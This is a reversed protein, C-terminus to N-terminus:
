PTNINQEKQYDLFKQTIRPFNKKLYLYKERVGEDTENEVKEYVYKAFKKWSNQEHNLGYFTFMYDSIYRGDFDDKILNTDLYKQGAKDFARCSKIVEDDIIVRPYKAEHEELNYAKVFGEGFLVDNSYYIQGKVIAGRSTVPINLRLLRIQLYDCIAMVATLANKVSAEVFICVTDSMVKIHLDEKSIIPQSTEDFSIVYQKNIEDFFSAITECDYIELSKTFGLIDLVAIYSEKYERM